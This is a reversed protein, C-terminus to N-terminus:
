SQHKLYLHIQPNFYSNLILTLFHNAMQTEFQTELQSKYNQPRLNLHVTLTKLKLCFSLTKLKLYFSLTQIKIKFRQTSIKLQTEAKIYSFKM